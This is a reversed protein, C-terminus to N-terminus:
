KGNAATDATDPDLTSAGTIQLIDLHELGEGNNRTTSLHAMRGSVSVSIFDPHPVEFTRGDTLHLIFPVFPRARILERLFDSTM